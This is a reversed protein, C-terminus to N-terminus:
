ESLDKIAKFDRLTPEFRFAPGDTKNYSLTCGLLFLSLSLLLFHKM